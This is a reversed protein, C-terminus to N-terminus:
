MILQLKKHSDLAFNETSIAYIADIDLQKTKQRRAPTQSVRWADAKPRPWTM